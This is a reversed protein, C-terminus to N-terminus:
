QPQRYVYSINVRSDESLFRQYSRVGKVPDSNWYEIALHTNDQWRLDLQTDCGTISVFEREWDFAEDKRNVSIRLECWGEANGAKNITAKYEGSPSALKNILQVTTTDGRLADFITNPLLGVRWLGM